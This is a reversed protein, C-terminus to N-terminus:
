FSSGGCSSGCSSCSSGCSSSSCSSGSSSSSSVDVSRQGVKKYNGYRITLPATMAVATTVAKQTKKISSSTKLAVVFATLCGLMLALVGNSLYKMPQPVSRAEIVDLMQKMAVMCTQFYDGKKAYSAVNNTINNARSNNFFREMNGRRQIVIRRSSMDIMFLAADANQGFLEVRKERAREYDAKSSATDVTYVAINAYETLAYMQEVLEREEESTLLDADDVVVATFGSKENKYIFYRQPQKPGPGAFATVCPAFVILILAFILVAARTRKGNNRM